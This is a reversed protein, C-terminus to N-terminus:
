KDTSIDSNHLIMMELSDKKEKRNAQTNILDTKSM